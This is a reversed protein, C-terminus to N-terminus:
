EFAVELIQERTMAPDQRYAGVVSRFKGIPAVMALQNTRDMEAMLLEAAKKLSAPTSSQFVADVTTVFNTEDVETDRLYIRLQNRYSENSKREQKLADEYRDILGQHTGDKKAAAVKAGYEEITGDSRGLIFQVRGIRKRWESLSRYLAAGSFVARRLALEIAEQSEKRATVLASQVNELGAKRALETEQEIMQTLIANPDSKDDPDLEQEWADEIAYILNDSRLVFSTLVVRFGITDYTNPLASDQRYISYEKRKASSVESIRSEVSGGRTVYGGVQGHLRGGNNLAFYDAVIEEVNGYMDHLGLPNGRRAGIPKVEGDSTQNAFWAYDDLRLARDMEFRRANFAAPEKAAVGGRVSFEWEAETPLRYFGMHGDSKPMLEPTEGRSWASLSAAFQQAQLKTVGGQPLDGTQRDIEQCAGTEAWNRVTDYQDRTVEYRGMYFYTTNKEVDPFAGRIYATRTYQYPATIPDPAGMRFRHDDLPDDARAYTEVRMFAMAGGCPLPMILDAPASKNRSKVAPDYHSVPWSIEQAAASAPALAIAPIAILVAQLLAIANRV